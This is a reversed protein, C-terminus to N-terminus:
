VSLKVSISGCVAIIFWGWSLLFFLSLFSYLFLLGSFYFKSSYTQLYPYYNKQNHKRGTLGLSSSFPSFPGSELTPWLEHYCMSDAWFAVFLWMNMPLLAHGWCAYRAKCVARCHLYVCSLYSIVLHRDIDADSRCKVEHIQSGITTALRREPRNSSAKITAHM